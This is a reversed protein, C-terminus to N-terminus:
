PIFICDMPPAATAAAPTPAAVVGAAMLDFSTITPDCQWQGSRSGPGPGHFYLWYHQESVRQGSKITWRYGPGPVTSKQYLADTVYGDKFASVSQLQPGDGKSADFLFGAPLKWYIYVDGSYSPPVAPEVSMTFTAPFVFYPAQYIVELLCATPGVGCDSGSSALAKMPMEACASLLGVSVLAFVKRSKVM